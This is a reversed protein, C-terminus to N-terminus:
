DERDLKGFKMQYGTIVIELENIKEYLSNILGHQKIIEESQHEIQGGQVELQKSMKDILDGQAKLVTETSQLQNDSKTKLHSFLGAMLASVLTGVTGLISVIIAVEM